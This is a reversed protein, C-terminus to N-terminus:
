LQRLFHQKGNTYIHICTHAFARVLLQAVAIAITIAFTNVFAFAAFTLPLTPVFVLPLPMSPVPACLFLNKPLRHDYHFTLPPTKSEPRWPPAMTAMTAM